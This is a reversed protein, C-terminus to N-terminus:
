RPGLSVGSATSPSSWPQNGSDWKLRATSHLWNGSKESITMHIERVRNVTNTDQKLLGYKYRTSKQFRLKPSCHLLALLRIEPIEIQIQLPRALSWDAIKCSKVAVLEQYLASITPPTLLNIVSVHSQWTMASSCIPRPGGEPHHDALSDSECQFGLCYPRDLWCTNNIRTLCHFVRYSVM